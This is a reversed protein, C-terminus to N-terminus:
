LKLQFPQLRRLTKWTKRVFWPYEGHERVWKELFKLTRPDSPYGSGFDGYQERLKAVAQDRHVKAIISAAAVVPYKEEAEHECVLRVPVKLFEAIHSSFRKVDIDCSDVYAVEPKLKGIVEAMARAELFNLKRFKRGRAVAEDVKAPPIEVVHYGKVMKKIEEALKRRRLPTLKKSDKVGIATLDDMNAEPYLVGAIVLPGIISGRGADDVGAALGSL